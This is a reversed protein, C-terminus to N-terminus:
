NLVQRVLDPLAELLLLLPKSVEVRLSLDPSVLTAKCTSVQESGHWMPQNTRGIGIRHLQKCVGRQSTQM